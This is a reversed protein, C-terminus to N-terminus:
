QTIYDQPPFHFAFVQTHTGTTHELEKSVDFDPIKIADVEGGGKFVENKPNVIRIRQKRWIYRRYYYSLVDM